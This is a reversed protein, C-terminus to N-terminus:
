TMLPRYLPAIETLRLVEDVLEKQEPPSLYERWLAVGPALELAKVM